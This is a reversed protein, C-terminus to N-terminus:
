PVFRVSSILKYWFFAASSAAVEIMGAARCAGFEIRGHL